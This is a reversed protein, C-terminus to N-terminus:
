FGLLERFDASKYVEEVNAFYPRQVTTGGGGPDAAEAYGVWLYDWARKEAVMLDDALVINTENDGAAFKYTILWSADNNNDGDYKGECGLFLVEFPQYTNWEVLNVRGTCAKLQRVYRKTIYDLRRTITFELHPVYIDCGEIRDKSVGIAKKTDPAPPGGDRIYQALTGRSQTIHQTGGATSFSFEGGLQDNLTTEVPLTPNEPGGQGDLEAGELAGYDVTVYWFGGGQPQSKIRKKVMGLYTDSAVIAVADNIAGADEELDTSKAWYERSASLAKPDVNLPRSLARELVTISM